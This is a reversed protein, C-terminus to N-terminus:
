ITEINNIINDSEKRFKKIAQPISNLIDTATTGDKGKKEAALDGALGHIFVGTRVANEFIEKETNGPVIKFMAAIIGTLVDGSGATAMGPNGTLNIFVEGDPCGILSNAGKFVIFCGYLASKERTIQVRNTKTEKTKGGFLRIFEAPHPTLVTLNKRKKILDLNDKLATLGDGDILLPKKIRTVLTRVLEQTEKYLSLGPGIVVFDAEESFEILDKLNEKSISGTKTEEQPLLVLERGRKGMYSSISKPTALYSLGGGAKLFSMASFYPAGLYKQAGSIFLCKGFSGKHTDKGREKLELPYNIETKISKDDYLAPPFSIHSVFLKEWYEYGPYNLEGAKPLGFTVTIDSKVAVGMIEGTDGNIGSPIDVSVVKKGAKNVLEITKKYIGKVEGSLGTGLMADVIVDNEKLAKQIEKQNPKKKISVGIKKLTEFNKRTIGKLKQEEALLIFKVEANNSYLKRAVVMGDGGNNGSGALILFKKDKIGIEKEIAYFVANGANEMLLIEDISYKKVATKDLNRMESVSAVKM